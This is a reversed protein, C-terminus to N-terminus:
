RLHQYSLHVFEFGQRQLAPIAKKVGQATEGNPRNMHLVVISGSGANRLAEDVQGASYTAGYDGVVDFGVVLHGTERAITTCIENYHATGSRYWRPREGIVAQLRRANEEIEHYAEFVSSTGKIDLASRGSVSCPLHSLGHNAIEFLPNAALEKVTETHRNLWIGSIFLTASIEEEVLFEILERDYGGGCADLTLAIKRPSTDLRTRVGPVMEGWHQPTQEALAKLWAPASEHDEHDEASARNKREAIKRDGTARPRNSSGTEDSADFPNPNANSFLNWGAISPQSQLQYNASDDVDTADKPPANLGSIQPLISPTVPPAAQPAGSPSPFKQSTATSESRLEEALPEQTFLDGKISMVFLAAFIVSGLIWLSRKFIPNRRLM